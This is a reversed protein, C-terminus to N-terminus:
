SGRSRAPVASCMGRSSHRRRELWRRRGWPHRSTARRTTCEGRGIPTHGRSPMSTRCRGASAIGRRAGDSSRCENEILGLDGFRLVRLAQDPDLNEVELLSPVEARRPGFFYGLVGGSGDVRAVVGVAYDGDRLPVAFWDGERYNIKNRAM